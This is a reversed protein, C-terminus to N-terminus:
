KKDTDGAQKPQTGYGYQYNYKYRKRGIAKLEVDNMLFGLIRSGAFKLAKVAGDVEEKTAFNERVVFIVGDAKKSLVAADTVLNVPPTDLFIYDYQQSLSSLLEDMAPMSLLEAPNPPTKGAPIFDVGYKESRRIVEKATCLGALLDSVGKTNKTAFKKHINPRRLDCDLVIVKEGLEAFTIALNVCSTSKGESRGAGTFIISKSSKKDALAFIINTRVTKYAETIAFPTNEDLITRYNHPKENLIKNKIRDTKM